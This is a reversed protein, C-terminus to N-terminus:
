LYYYYYHRCHFFYFYVATASWVRYVIDKKVSM